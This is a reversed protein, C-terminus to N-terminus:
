PKSGQGLLQGHPEAGLKIEGDLQIQRHDNVAPSAAPGMSRLIPSPALLSPRQGRPEHMSPLYGGILYFGKQRSTQRDAEPPV